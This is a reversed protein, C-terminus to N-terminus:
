KSKQCAYKRQIYLNKPPMCEGTSVSSMLFINSYDLVQYQIKGCAMSTLYHPESNINCTTQM